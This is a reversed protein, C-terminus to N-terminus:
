NPIKFGLDKNDQSLKDSMYNTNKIKKISNLEATVENLLWTTNVNIDLTQARLGLMKVANYIHSGTVGASHFKDVVLQNTFENEFVFNKDFEQHLSKKIIGLINEKTLSDFSLIKDFRGPRQAALDLLEVSNTTALFGVNNKIKDTGDLVDLFVGLAESYGGKSRSGLYMDIDDLIFVAPALLEALEIKEKLAKDPVTKIVTVGQAILHNVIALTMETKGTGPMGVMLYRMLRNQHEYLKVYLQVDNTISDPLFVDDFSRKELKAGQVWAINENPMYLYTGKVNSLEISRFMLKTFLYSDEIDTKEKSFLLIVHKYQGDELYKQFNLTFKVNDFEFLVIHDLFRKNGAHLPLNDIFKSEDSLVAFINIGDVLAMEPENLMKNFYSFFMNMLTSNVERKYEILVPYDNRKIIPLTNVSTVGKAKNSVKATLKKAPTKKALVKNDNRM